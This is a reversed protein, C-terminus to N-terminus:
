LLDLDQSRSRGKGATGESWDECAGDIPSVILEEKTSANFLLSVSQVV